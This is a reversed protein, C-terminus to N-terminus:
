RPLSSRCRRKQRSILLNLLPRGTRRRRRRNRATYVQQETSIVDNLLM